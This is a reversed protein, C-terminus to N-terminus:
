FLEGKLTKRGKEPFLFHTKKTKSIRKGCRNAADKVFFDYKKSFFAKCLGRFTTHNM